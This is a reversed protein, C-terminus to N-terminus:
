EITIDAFMGATFHPPGGPVNPPGDTAQQAAAMYAAPDAGTPIACMILYRGPEAFSADGVANIQPKGGPPAIVVMAPPGQSLAQQEAQPLKVLDAAPRKETDPLKIAVFEHLERESSNELQVTAGVKATAPVGEFAYDVATVDLTGEATAGPSADDDGDDSDDGCAGFVLAAAALLAFVRRSRM